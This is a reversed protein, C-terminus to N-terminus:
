TLLLSTSEAFRTKDDRRLFFYAYSPAPNILKVHRLSWHLVSKLIYSEYTRFLWSFNACSHSAVESLTTNNLYGPNFQIFQLQQQGALTSEPFSKRTCWKLVLCSLYFEVQVSICISRDSQSLSRVSEATLTSHSSTTKPNELTKFSCKSAVPYNFEKSSSFAMFPKKVLFVQFYQFFSARACLAEIQFPLEIQADKQPAYHTLFYSFVTIQLLNWKNKKSYYTYWM